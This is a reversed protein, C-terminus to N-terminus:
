LLRAPMYRELICSENLHIRGCRVFNNKKKKPFFMSFKISEDHEDHIDGLM